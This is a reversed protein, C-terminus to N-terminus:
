PCNHSSVKWYLLTVGAGVNNVELSSPDLHIGVHDGPEAGPVESSPLRFFVHHRETNSQFAVLAGVGLVVRGEDDCVLLQLRQITSELCQMLADSQRHYRAVRRRGAEHAPLFVAACCQAAM